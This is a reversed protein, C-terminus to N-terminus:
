KKGGKPIIVSGKFKDSNTIVGDSVTIVRDAMSALEKDHTVVVITTGQDNRIKEFLEFIAVANARDLNGTPEDAFLIKPNNQLARAIAARQMQGGSLERPLHNSRDALGVTDALFKGRETRQKTKKRAFMAPVTINQQLTLFPQLYFFQFIFGTTRNRFISLQKDSMHAINQEDIIIDGSSPKDLGGMLHLLTSKGSGSTGAIAVFEGSKIQISVRNLATVHQRGLKYTKVVDVVSIVTDGFKRSRQKKNKVIEDSIQNAFILPLAKQCADVDNDFLLLLEKATQKQKDSYQMLAFLTAHM